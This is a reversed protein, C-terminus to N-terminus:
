FIEGTATIKEFIQSGLFLLTMHLNNGSVWNYYKEDKEFTSRLMSIIDIIKRPIRFGIFLKKM